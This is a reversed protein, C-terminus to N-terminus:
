MHIQEIRFNIHPMVYWDHQVSLATSDEFLSTTQLLFFVSNCKLGTLEREDVMLPPNPVVNAEM